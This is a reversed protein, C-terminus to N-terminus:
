YIPPEPIPMRACRIFFYLYIQLKPWPWFYQDSWSTRVKTNQGQAYCQNYHVDRLKTVLADHFSTLFCFSRRSHAAYKFTFIYNIWANECFHTCSFSAINLIFYQDVFRCRPDSSLRTIGYCDGKPCIQRDVGWVWTM